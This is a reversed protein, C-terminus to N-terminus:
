YMDPPAGSSLQMMFYSPHSWVDASERSVLFPLDGLLLINRFALFQKVERLQEYLQWQMWKHFEIREFNVKQFNDITQLERNKLGEDWNQWGTDPNMESIVKYVSYDNLWNENLSRYTNFEAIDDTKTSKYIEWLLDVKAQKIKYNIRRFLPKYKKKLRELEHLFPAIDANKIDKITLYMPDIAFSSVSNYPAFDSGVDNLPLLQIISIGASICWEALLKIDTLEGIGTSEASYVSYLPVAVGARRKTGIRRWKDATRSNLFYADNNETNYM